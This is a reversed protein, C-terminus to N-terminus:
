VVRRNKLHAQFSNKFEQKQCGKLIVRYGQIPRYIPFRMLNKMFKIWVTTNRTCSTAKNPNLM